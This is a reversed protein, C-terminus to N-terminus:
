KGLLHNAQKFVAKFEKEKFVLDNVFLELEEIRNQLVYREEERGKNILAMGADLQKQLMDVNEAQELLWLFDDKSVEFHAIETLLGSLIPEASNRIKRIKGKTESENYPM